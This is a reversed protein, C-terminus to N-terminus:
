AHIRVGSHTVILAQVRPGFMQACNQVQVCGLNSCRKLLADLGSFTISSNQNLYIERLDTCHISIANLSEDTIKCKNLNVTVLHTCKEALAIVGDDSVSSGSLDLITLNSCRPLIRYIQDDTANSDYYSTLHYPTM